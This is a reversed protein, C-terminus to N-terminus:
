HVHISSGFGKYAVKDIIREPRRGNAFRLINKLAYKQGEPLAEPVGDANHPSALFNTLRFFPFDLQFAEGKRPYTWWVDIGAKFRPHKKLHDYLDAQVIISGRAVNILICDDKMLNLWKRNILNRTHINLPLSVVVFDSQELLSKLRTMTWVKDFHPVPRGTTNIGLTRMNFAKAVRAVSEGIGGAGLIGITKGGLFLGDTSSELTGARLREHNRILHKAFFLIMGFVHEAISEKYAGANSCVTVTEPISDFNITDVGATITQIMRLNPLDKFLQENVLSGKYLLLAKVDEKRRADIKQLRVLEYRGRTAHSVSTVLQTVDMDTAIIKRRDTM